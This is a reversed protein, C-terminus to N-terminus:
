RSEHAVAETQPKHDYRPLHLVFRSGRNPGDSLARITGGHDQVIAYVVSLGLGTGSANNGRKRTFFPEFVHKLTDADMGQGNDAVEICVVDDAGSLSLVVWGQEPPVAELANIVLNLIIQKLEVERAFAHLHQAQDPADFRLERGCFQGLRNIMDVVDQMLPALRVPERPADSKRMLTLLKEVISKCRMAEDRVVALSATCQEQKEPSGIERLTLETYGLIVNLPNNIEHAIGAALYGVSALRESMVLERSKTHVRDELTAYLQNLESVLADFNSGLDHVPDITDAYPTGAQTPQAATRVKDHLSMIPRVVWRHQVVALVIAAGAGLTCLVTLSTLAFAAQEHTDTLAQDVLQNAGRSLESVDRRLSDIRAVVAGIPITNAPAEPDLQARLANVRQAIARGTQAENAHHSADAGKQEAQERVYAQLVGHTQALKTRAAERRVPLNTLAIRAEELYARAADIERQEDYEEIVSLVNHQMQNLLVAAIVAITAMALISSISGLALRRKLNM